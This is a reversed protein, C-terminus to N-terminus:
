KTWIKIIYDNGGTIFKEKGFKIISYIPNFHCIKSEIYDLFIIDNNEDRIIKYQYISGEDDSFLIYNNNFNLVCFIKWSNNCDIITSYYNLTNIITIAYVGGIILFKNQILCISNNGIISIENLTKKINKNLLDIFKLKHINSSTSIVIENEKIEIINFIIENLNFTFTEKYIIEKNNNNLNYLKLTKDDSCSCLNFLNSQSIEIIKNVSKSHSIIKQILKYNKKEIKYINITSDKSSSILNKFKLIKSEILCIVSKLHEEILIEVIYTNNNYIKIKSDNSGSVFRGDSLLILCLISSNNLVLNCECFYKNLDFEM